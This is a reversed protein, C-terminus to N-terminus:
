RRLVAPFSVAAHPGAAHRGRRLPDSRRRDRRLMDPLLLTGCRWVTRSLRSGPSTYPRVTIAFQAISLLVSKVPTPSDPDRTSRFQVRPKQAVDAFYPPLFPIRLFLNEPEKFSHGTNRFFGFKRTDALRINRLTCGDCLFYLCYGRSGCCPNGCPLVADGLM